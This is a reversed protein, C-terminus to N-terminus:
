SAFICIAPMTPTDSAKTFTCINLTMDYSKNNTIHISQHLTYPQKLKLALPSPLFISHLSTKSANLKLRSHETTRLSYYM